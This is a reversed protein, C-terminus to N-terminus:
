VTIVRDRAIIKWRDVVRNQSIVEASQYVASTPCAHRPIAIIADGIRLGHALRSRVVLHEETHGIEVADALTPFWLRRGAPQDAACAKHGVDLTVEDPRNRSIVRTLIGLAPRFNMEPFREALDADFYATTGPSLLLGPEAHEALIPFSGSGGAVIKPVSIGSSLLQDRFRRLQNWGTEVARRRERFDSQRHHGDYWHLGEFDVCDLSAAREILDAAEASIPVGTRHMGTDLDVLVAANPGKSSRRASQLQILSETNDVLSIFRTAPFKDMLRVFRGLNPGVMQYAILVTEAGLDALMEAEAITACKHHHIGSDIQQQVIEKTKHTKCHPCLRNPAGAVRIMECLNSELREHFILLAPSFVREVNEIQFDCDAALQNHVTM